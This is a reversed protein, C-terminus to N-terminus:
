RSVSKRRGPIIPACIDLTLEEDPQESNATPPISGANMSHLASITEVIGAAGMLHGMAGKNATVPMADAHSGFVKRIALTEIKDNYPTATGHTNIFDVQQPDIGGLEITRTMLETIGSATTDPASLHFGDNNQYSSVVRGEIDMHERNAAEESILVVCGAGESFVTGNRRSDWPRVIDDPSMARLSNLGSYIYINLEDVGCCVVTECDGVDIWRKGLAILSTGSACSLSLTERRGNIGFADGLRKQMGGFLYGDMEAAFPKGSSANQALKLFKGANGFNTGLVLGARALNIDLGELARSIAFAAFYDCLGGDEIGARSAALRAAELRDGTIKGGAQSRFRELGPWDDGSLQKYALERGNLKERLEERSSAFPTILGSSVVATRM